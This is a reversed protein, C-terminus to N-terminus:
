SLFKFVDGICDFSKITIHNNETKALAYGYIGLCRLDWGQAEALNAVLKRREGITM